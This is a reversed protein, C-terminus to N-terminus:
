DKHILTDKDSIKFGEEKWKQYLEEATFDMRWGVDPFDRESREHAGWQIGTIFVKKVSEDIAKKRQEQNMEKKFEVM